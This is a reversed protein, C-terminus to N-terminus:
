SGTKRIPGVLIEQASTRNPLRYLLGLCMGVAMFVTAVLYSFPVLQSFFGTTQHWADGVVGLPGPVAEPLSPEAANRARRM